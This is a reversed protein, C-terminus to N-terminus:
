SNSADKSSPQELTENANKKKTEVNNANNNNQNSEAKLKTTPREREELMAEAIRYALASLKRLDKDKDYDEGHQILANMAQGAFYDRTDM